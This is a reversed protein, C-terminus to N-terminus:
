LLCRFPQPGMIRHRLHRRGSAHRALLAGDKEQWQVYGPLVIKM